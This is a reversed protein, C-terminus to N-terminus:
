CPPNSYGNSGYNPRKVPRAPEEDDDDSFTLDIVEPLPRKNSTASRPMASSDRSSSNTPTGLFTSPAAMRSPTECHTTGYSARSLTESVVFDDDDLYSPEYSQEKRSSKQTGPAAWKGDPEITVQEVSDPTEVLIERVYEDVALQDFPAPKNCVPCIWQPGQEQLQLYSTADFCQIHSCSIARCPLNLRMYSLPCKLSLNQSTAIVDPDNAKKTIESIVSEKRIKKQIQGILKNVPTTKCMYIGLYFKKTDSDQDSLRREGVKQTLAYTFEINNSYSSPKLRLSDTIDAPRTSGPKNKLGRLNAKIEGTNVKLESQHPFSIDQEGTNGSACFVMVRLNPDTSCQQLLPHDLARVSVPITNRHQSMVECVKVDGVRDKIEYFPSRKYNFASPMLMNDSQPRIALSNPTSQTPFAHPNLSRSGNIQGYGTTTQYSPMAAYHPAPQSSAPPLYSTPPLMSQSHLPAYKYISGRVEAFRPWDETGMCENILQIIRKQLDAKNGTKTLGNAACINQLAPKQLSPIQVIRTLAQADFNTPPPPSAM